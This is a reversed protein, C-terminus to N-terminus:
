KYSKMERHWAALRKAREAARDLQQQTVPVPPERWIEPGQATHLVTHCVLLGHCDPLALDALVADLWAAEGIAYPWTVPQWGIARLGSRSCPLGSM